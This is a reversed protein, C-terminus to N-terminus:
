KKPLFWVLNEYSSNEEPGRTAGAYRIIKDMKVKHKVIIIESTQALVFELFATSM